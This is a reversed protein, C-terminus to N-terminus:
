VTVDVVEVSGGNRKEQAKLRGKELWAALSNGWDRQPGWTTRKGAKRTEDLLRTMLAGHRDVSPYADFEVTELVPLREMVEKLLNGSFDTFFDRNLRFGKFIPSSPDVEVFVRLTRVM